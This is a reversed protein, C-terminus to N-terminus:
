EPNVCSLGPSDRKQGLWHGMDRLCQPGWAGKRGAQSRWPGPSWPLPSASGPGLWVTWIAVVRGCLSHGSATGEWGGVKRRLHLPSCPRAPLPPAAAALGSPQQSCRGAGRALSTARAPSLAPLAEPLRGTECSSPLTGRRLRPQMAGGARRARSWGVPFPRRQLGPGLGPSGSVRESAATGLFAQRRTPHHRLVLLLLRESVATPAPARGPPCAGPRQSCQGPGRSTRHGSFWPAVPLHSTARLGGGPHRVYLHPCPPGRPSPSPAGSGGGGLGSGPTDREGWHSWYRLPM